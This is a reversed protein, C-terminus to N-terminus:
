APIPRQLLLVPKIWIDAERHLGEQLLPLQEKISAFKRKFDDIEDLDIVVEPIGIFDISGSDTSLSDFGQVHQPLRSSEGAQENFGISGTVFYRRKKKSKIKGLNANSVRKGKRKPHHLKCTSKDSCDGTAAFTPCVTTHKKNCEDGDVCFGKLFGECIPAKPNVSVHRYPCEENTCMGELFFSCDPMREPIVKHSFLCNAGSCTGKLFKTCVAVKEPDHIYPCEGESKNCKGFRTFFLCYQQRKARRSRATHLSWRVKENALARSAAKPDRVLQHGNGIRVYETGDFSLRRPTSLIASDVRQKISSTETSADCWQDPLRHLTRGSADMKYRVLGVTVVRERGPSAQHTPRRHAKAKAVANAAVAVAEKEERRQKEVAAVAKTAEESAQKSRKEISKTWKLNAGSLGLVGSRHLSFGGASHSYVPQAKRLWQLKKSILFLLSGKKAKPLAKFRGARVAVGLGSRKWPFLLPIVSKVQSSPGDKLTWVRPPPVYARKRLAKRVTTHWVTHAQGGSAKDQLAKSKTETGNRVLQNNKRKYYLDQTTASSHSSTVQVTRTLGSSVPPLSAILQNAKSKVYYTTSCIESKKPGASTSQINPLVPKPQLTSNLVSSNVESVASHPRPDDAGITKTCLSSSTQVEATVVTTAKTLLHSSGFGQGDRSIDLTLPAVLLKDSNVTGATIENLSMKRASFVQRFASKTNKIANRFGPYSRPARILNSFGKGVMDKVPGHPLGTNLSSSVGAASSVSARVLSNGKRVYAAVESVKQNGLQPLHNTVVPKPIKSIAQSASFSHSNTSRRWTHAGARAPTSQVRGHPQLTAVSLQKSPAYSVPRDSLNTELKGGHRHLIAESVCVEDKVSDTTPLDAEGAVKHTQQEPALDSSFASEMVDFPAAATAEAMKKPSGIMVGQQECALDPTSFASKTVIDLSADFTAEAVKNPSGALPGQQESAKDPTSFAAKTVINLPADVTAKAVKDPSAAVAVQQEFALESTSLAPKAMDFPGYVTAEAVKKQSGDTAGQQESALDPISFAPKAIKDLPADVTAGSVKSPLGSMAGQQDSIIELTSFAPKWIKNFPSDVITSAEAKEHSVKAVSAKLSKGFLRVEREATTEKATNRSIGETNALIGEVDPSLKKNETATGGAVKLMMTVPLGSVNALEKTFTPSPQKLTHFLSSHSLGHTDECNLDSLSQIDGSGHSLTNTPCPNCESLTLLSKKCPQSEFSLSTNSMVPLYDKVQRRDKEVLPVSSEADFNVQLNLLSSNIEAHDKSELINKLFPMSSREGLALEEELQPVLTSSPQNDIGTISLPLTSGITSWGQNESSAHWHLAGLDEQRFSPMSTESFNLLQQKQHVFQHSDLPFASNEIPAKSRHDASNQCQVPSSVPLEPSHVEPSGDNITLMLESQFDTLAIQEQKIRVHCHTDEGVHQQPSKDDQQMNVSIDVEKCSANSKWTQLELAVEQNDELGSQRSKPSGTCVKADSGILRVVRSKVTKSRPTAEVVRLAKGVSKFLRSTRQKPNWEGIEQEEDSAGGTSVGAAVSKKRGSSVEVHDSRILRQNGVSGVANEGNFFHPVVPSPSSPNDRAGHECFQPERIQLHIELSDKLGTSKEESQDLRQALPPNSPLKRQSPSPFRGESPLTKRRQSSHKKKSSKSPSIYSSDQRDHPSPVRNSIAHGDQRDELERTFRGLSLARRVLPPDRSAEPTRPLVALGPDYFRRHRTARDRETDAEEDRGRKRLGREGLRQSGRASVSDYPAEERDGRRRNVEALPAEYPAARQFVARGPRREDLFLKASLAASRRSSDLESMSRLDDRSERYDRSFPGQRSYRSAEDLALRNDTNRFGQPRETWVANQNRALHPVM